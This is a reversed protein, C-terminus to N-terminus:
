AGSNTCGLSIAICSGDDETSSSDYNYATADTCGFVELEDCTGDVDSDVLCNGSCDYYTEAYTCSGDETNAESNYNCATDDMCGGIELVPISLEACSPTDSNWGNLDIIYENGGFGNIFAVDFEGGSGNFPPNVCGEYDGYPM